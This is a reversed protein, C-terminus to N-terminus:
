FRAYAETQQFAAKIHNVSLLKGTTRDLEIEIVDFRPQLGVDKDQLYLAATRLIHQQKRRDVANMGSVASHAPRTKVEAFVITDKKRAIIDLEGSKTKYNKDLIKYGQQRLHKRALKEGLAGFKKDTMQKM